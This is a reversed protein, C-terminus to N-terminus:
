FLYIGFNVFDFFFVKERIVLNDRGLFCRLPRPRSGTGGLTRHSTGNRTPARGNM